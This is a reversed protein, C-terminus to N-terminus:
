YHELEGLKSRMKFTVNGDVESTDTAEIAQLLKIHPVGLGGFFDGEDGGGVVDRQLHQCGGAEFAAVM